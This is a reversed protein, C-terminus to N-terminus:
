IMRPSSLDMSGNEPVIKDPLGHSSFLVRLVDTTKGSYCVENICRVVM